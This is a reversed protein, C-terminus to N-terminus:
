KGAVMAVMERGDQLVARRADGICGGAQVAQQCVDCQLVARKRRAFDADNM